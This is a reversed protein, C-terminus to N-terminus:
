DMSLANLCDFSVEYYLPLYYLLAFQVFGMLFTGIFAIAATRTKLIALPVMPTNPVLSEYVAWAIMGLAGLLLPVLTEYSAWPFM